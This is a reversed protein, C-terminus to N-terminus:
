FTVGITKVLAVADQSAEIEVRCIYLGPTVPVGSGDMGDWTARYAGSIGQQAMVERVVKGSLDHVKVTIPQSRDVRFILFDINVEDNRGDGNPTILPPHIQM